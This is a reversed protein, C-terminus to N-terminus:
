QSSGDSRCLSCSYYGRGELYYMGARMRVLDHINLTPKQSLISWPHLAHRAPVVAFLLNSIPWNFIWTLFLFCSIPLPFCGITTNSSKAKSGVASPRYHFLAIMFSLSHCIKMTTGNLGQIIFLCCWNGRLSRVPPFLFPVHCALSVSFGSHTKRVLRCELLSFYICSKHWLKHKCPKPPKKSLTVAM